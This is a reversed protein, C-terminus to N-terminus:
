SKGTEVGDRVFGSLERIESETEVRKSASKTNCFSSMMKLPGCVKLSRGEGTGSLALQISIGTGLPTINFSSTFLLIQGNSSLTVSSGTSISFLFTM